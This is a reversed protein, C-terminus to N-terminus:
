VYDFICLLSEEKAILDERKSGPLGIILVNEAM